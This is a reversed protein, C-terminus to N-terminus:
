DGKTKGMQLVPHGDGLFAALYAARHQDLEKLASAYHRPPRDPYAKGALVGMFNLDLYAPRTTSSVPLYSPDHYTLVHEMIEVLLGIFHVDAGACWDLRPGLDGTRDCQVRYGYIVPHVYIELGDNAVLRFFRGAPIDPPAVEFVRLKSDTKM